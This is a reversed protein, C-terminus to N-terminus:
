RVADARAEQAPAMRSQEVIYLGDRSARQVQAGRDRHPVLQSM